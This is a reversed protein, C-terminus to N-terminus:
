PGVGTRLFGRNPAIDTITELNGVAAAFDFDGDGGLLGLPIRIEILSTGQLGPPDFVLTLPILGLEEYETGNWALIPVTQAEADSAALDITLEVGLGTAVSTFRDVFSTTGTRGNQDADIDINGLLDVGPTTTGSMLLFVVAETEGIQAELTLIDVPNESGFTDLPPDGYRGGWPRGPPNGPRDSYLARVGVSSLSSVAGETTTTPLETFLISSSETISNGEPLFILDEIPRDGLWQEELELGPSLLYVQGQGRDSILLHFAEPCSAGIRYLALLEDPEALGPVLVTREGTDRDVAVVAALDRDSVVIDGTCLDVAIGALSASDQAQTPPRPQRSAPAPTGTGAEIVTRPFIRIESQDAVLLNGSNPDFVMSDPAQLGQVVTLQARTVPDFRIIRGQSRSLLLLFRDGSSAEFPIIKSINEGPFEAVTVRDGPAVSVIQSSQEVQFQVPGKSQLSLGLLEASYLRELGRLYAVAQVVGVGALVQSKELVDVSAAVAAGDSIAAVTVPLRLPVQAPATYSGTATIVGSQAAAGVLSWTVPSQAGEAKFQFPRGPQVIALAPVVRFAPGPEGSGSVVQPPINALIRSTGFLSTMFIPRDSNVRIYGSGLNDAEDILETLLQSDRQGPALVKASRGLVEGAGSYAVVSVGTALSSPNLVAVGTFYGLTTAIHSFIGNTLPRAQAAVSAWSGTAPIGYNVYGSMRASSSEVKLWGDLTSGDTFGFLETLDRVLGQEPEMALVVPNSTGIHPAGYLSGDGQYAYVSVLTAQNGHNILGLETQWPGLVAMQPFYLEGLGQDQLPANLGIIDGDQEQVFQFGSVPASALISLYSGAPFSDTEFLESAAFRLMGKAPLELGSRTVVVAGPRHLRFDVRVAETQPNVLNFETTFRDDERALNFVIKRGAEPPDAGDFFSIDYNLYLYFGTIGETESVAQMWGVFSPDLPGSFLETVTRALQHGPQIQWEVPNQLGAEDLIEGSERYLTIRITAPAASPNVFAIGTLTEHESSIRPFNLVSQGAAASLVLTALFSPVVLWRCWICREM